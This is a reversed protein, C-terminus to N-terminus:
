RQADGFIGANRPLGMSLGGAQNCRFQSGLSVALLGAAAILHWASPEPVTEVTEAQFAFPSTDSLWINLDGDSTGFRSSFYCGSGSVPGLGSTLDYDGFSSGYIVYEGGGACSFGVDNWPYMNDFLTLTGTLTATRLGGVIVTGTVNHNAYAFLTQDYAVDATNGQISFDITQNNFVTGGITGAGELSFDYQIVQAHLSLRLALMIGGM